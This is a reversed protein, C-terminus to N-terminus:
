WSSARTPWSRSSRRGCTPRRTRRRVDREASGQQAEPGPVAEIYHLGLSATKDIAEYFTSQRFTWAQCASGGVSSRPTRPAPPWSPPWCALAAWAPWDLGPASPAPRDESFQSSGHSVDNSHELFPPPMPPHFGCIVRRMKSHPPNSRFCRSGAPLNYPQQAVLVRAARGAEALLRRDSSYIPTCIGHLRYCRFRVLTGAKEQRCSDRRLGTAM